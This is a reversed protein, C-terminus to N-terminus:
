YFSILKIDKKTTKGQQINIPKEHNEYGPYMLKLTHKGVPLKINLPTTGKYKGDIYVSAGKPTSSVSLYGYKESTPPQYTKILSVSKGNLKQKLEESTDRYSKSEYGERSIEVTYIKEPELILTVKGNRNTVEGGNDVEVEANKPEVYFILEINNEPFYSVAIEIEKNKNKIINLFKDLNGELEIKGDEGISFDGSIPKYKEQDAPKITIHYNKPSLYREFPTSGVAKEDTSEIIVSASDPKSTIKFRSFNFTPSIVYKKGKEVRIDREEIVEDKESVPLSLKIKYNGEELLLKKIPTRGRLEGNVYVDAGSPKSEITVIGVKMGYGLSIVVALVIIVLFIPLLIMALRPFKNKIEVKESENIKSRKVHKKIKSCKKNELDHIVEEPKQYRDRPDKSIMTLVIEDLWKPIQKNFKSPPLPDEKLHKTTIAFINDGIFPPRGTLMEYLTCGLSYIDSREDVKEGRIQEPSAYSPTYFLTEKSITKDQLKAIGFDTLKVQNNVDIMINGPKIDRHAVVGKEQAYSLAKLVDIIIRIAENISLRKREKIIERLTRGQVYETVFYPVNDVKGYDILKLINPHNLSSIIKIERFFRSVAKPDTAYQPHLVKVAVIKNTRLDRALYVTATGGSGVIDIIKYRSKLTGFGSM